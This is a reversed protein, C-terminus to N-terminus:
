TIELGLGDLCASVQVVLSIVDCTCFVIAYMRASILSSQRGMNVIFAGLLMYLAAAFFTPGIILTTIQM